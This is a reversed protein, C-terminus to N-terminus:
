AYMMGTIPVATLIRIAYVIRAPVDVADRIHISHADKRIRRANEQQNMAHKGHLANAASDAADTLVATRELATLSANM